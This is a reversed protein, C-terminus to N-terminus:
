SGGGKEGEESGSDDQGDNGLQDLAPDETGTIEPARQLGLGEIVQKGRETLGWTNGNGRGTQRKIRHILHNVALWSLNEWTTSRSRGIREGLERAPLTLRGGEAEIEVLIRQATEKRKLEEEWREEEEEKERGELMGACYNLFRLAREKLAAEGSHYIRLALWELRGEEIEMARDLDVGEGELLLYAARTRLSRALAELTSARFDTVGRELEGVTSLSIGAAEALEKQTLGLDRRRLRIQRAVVVRLNVFHLYPVFFGATSPTLPLMLAALPNPFPPFEVPSKM